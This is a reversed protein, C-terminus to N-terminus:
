FSRSSIITNRIDNCSNRSSFVRNRNVPYAGGIKENHSFNTYQLALNELEPIISYEWAGGNQVSCVTNEMSESIIIILNRKEEPFEINVTKGNIYYNDYIDTKQMRNKIYEDIGFGLVFYIIAFVCMVSVFLKKHKSIFGIPFLKININKNKIRLRCVINARTRKITLLYVIGLVIVIPGLCDAIIANTMSPATSEIGNLLYYMIQDFDQNAYNVTYYRTGVLVISILLVLIFFIVNKIKARM